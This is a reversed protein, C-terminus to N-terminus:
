QIGHKEGREPLRQTLLADAYENRGIRLLVDRRGNIFDAISYNIRQLSHLYKEANQREGTALHLVNLIALLPPHDLHQELIPELRAIAEHPDGAYLACVGFNFAAEKHHPERELVRRAVDLAETFLNLRMLCFGKNFLAVVADPAVTLFRNWLEIAEEYRELEAAQVALEGIAPLDDPHEALKQKGMAYYVEKKERNETPVGTLGGYHHIVFPAQQILYGFRQAAQDVMEHVDGAFRLQPINPFLRVKHSPHWGKAQEERPYSGNNAIWGEPHLRTYNRTLVSWCITNEGSAYVTQRFCDHDLPSLIEDADVVMVWKGHAADLSCNRAESFNGNWTFYSVKAGFVTAIDVTRDTSGTDVVIIEHAVPKLSALCQALNKEENKVIMCLSVSHAKNEALRDHIGVRKRLDLALPLLIEDAGFNVLFVECLELAKTYQGSQSCIMAHIRALNRSDPYSKSIEQILDAAEPIREIRESIDQLIKTSEGNLPETVVSRKIAQWADEKKGQGWLLIGLSLWASGCSPDAAIAQNFFIIAGAMEGRRAALTGLVTLSRARSKSQDAFQHAMEDEGLAAHCIARIESILTNDISTPMEPLVQLTDEYRGDALLIEALTIYVATNGPAVRIGKQMLMEVAKDIEGRMALRRAEQIADLPILSRLVSENLTTYDWKKRYLAMNHTMTDNYNVNNGSFSAGGAHHIFVDGAIINHHGALEARLCYDDDEFNGSGFSEDLLGIIDVLERRFLMCFGVIRRQQIARYRYIERFAASWAPLEELSRYGANAVVQIGSASNTMPGVIGTDPYRGIVEQLGALWGPTVVTDNNLLLIFDGRAAAIGQNCGTAFGRNGSNEIIHMRNDAAAQEQLWAVTGDTSGNDVIILEYPESTHSAISKLCAQTYSLQNWTLIIISTVSPPTKEPLQQTQPLAPTPRAVFAYQYHMSEEALSGVNLGVKQLADIIITPVPVDGKMVIAKCQSIEYGSSAFLRICESRTFFRLHTRDLIGADEYSWKGELLNKIVSWHRVNPISVIIEGHPSLKEKLKELVHWPNVLHELVDAIVVTDFYSAPLLELMEEVAGTLVRDLRKEAQAAARPECEVGWVEAGSNQKLQYGLMGAACGIDLIRRASPNVLQQIEPRSCSYYGQNYDPKTVIGQSM